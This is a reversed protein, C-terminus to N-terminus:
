EVVGKVGLRVLEEVDHDVVVVGVVEEVDQEVVGEVDRKVVGAGKVKEV